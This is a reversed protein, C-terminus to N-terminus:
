LPLERTWGGCRRLSKLYPRNVSGGQTQARCYGLDLRDLAIAGVKIIV